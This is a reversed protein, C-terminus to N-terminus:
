RQVNVCWLGPDNSPPEVITIAGVQLLAARCIRTADQPVVFTLSLIFADGGRAVTVPDSTALTADRDTVRMSLWASDASAVSYHGQVWMTVTDGPRFRGQEAAATARVGDEAIVAIVRTAQLGDHSARIEAQGAAKATIGGTGDVDIVDPRSSAWRSLSGPVPQYGWRYTGVALCTTREGIWLTPRCDVLLSTPRESTTPSPLFSGTPSTPTTTAMGSGCAAAAISLALVALRYRNRGAILDTWLRLLLLRM